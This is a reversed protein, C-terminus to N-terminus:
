ALTALLRRTIAPSAAGARLYEFTSTYREISPADDLILDGVLAEVYVIDPAIPEDFKLLVFAGLM